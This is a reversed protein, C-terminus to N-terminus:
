SMRELENKRARIVKQWSMMVILGSASSCHRSRYVQTLTCLKKYVSHKLQMGLRIFTQACAVGKIANRLTVFQMELAHCIANRFRSLNSEQLTVGCGELQSHM